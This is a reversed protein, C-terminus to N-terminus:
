VRINQKSAKRLLYGCIAKYSGDKAIEPLGYETVGLGVAAARYSSWEKVVIGDFDIQLIGVLHRQYPIVNLIGCAM